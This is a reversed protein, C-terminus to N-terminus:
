KRLSRPLLTAFLVTDVERGHDDTIIVAEPVTEKGAKIADALLERAGLEGVRLAAMVDPLEAGEDDTVLEGGRLHFYFRRM